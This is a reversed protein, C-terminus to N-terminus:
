QFKLAKIPSIRSVVSSPLLLAVMCTSFTLVNILIFNWFSLEIPVADLYYVEPNLKILNFHYQLWSLTLALVNGILLGRLLLYAAQHLFIRRISRNNAGLSKLLGVFSTRVVILVLVASGVNIIGIVIMLFIIILVNFDLFNLWSFLDAETKQITSVQLLHQNVPRMEVANKLAKEVESLKDFDKIEVEFGSIFNAGTGIGDKYRFRLPGKQTAFEQIEAGDVLCVPANDTFSIDNYNFGKPTKIQLTASDIPELQETNNKYRFAVVKLSTDKLATFRHATYVDPGLGWDFLLNTADGQVEIKVVLSQKEIVPRLMIKTGYDSMQQLLSLNGMVLKQDYEVFGTNYIGVVKLKKLLPKQKIHYSSIDQNLSINLMNATTSSLLVENINEKKPLRGKVLHSRIFTWDYQPDVGKLMLGLMDQRQVASDSGSVIKITDNFRASQLLIPKFAVPRISSVGQIQKLESLFPIRRDIAEAEFIHSSGAKSIFLPANFGTIKDKIQQQFGRVIALTLSNVLIALAISIVSIRLVPRSVRLGLHKQRILRSSIFREFSLLVNKCVWFYVFSKAETTNSENKSLQPPKNLALTKIGAGTRLSSVM